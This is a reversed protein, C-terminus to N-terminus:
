FGAVGGDAFNAAGVGAEGFELAELEAVLEEAEVEVLRQGEV